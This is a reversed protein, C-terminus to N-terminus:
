DLLWSLIVEYHQKNRHQKWGFLEPIIGYMFLPADYKQLSLSSRPKPAPQVSGMKIQAGTSGLRVSVAYAAFGKALSLPVSEIPM